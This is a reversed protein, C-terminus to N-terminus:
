LPTGSTSPSTVITGLPKIGGNWAGSGRTSDLPLCSMSNLAKRPLSPVDKRRPTIRARRTRIVAV